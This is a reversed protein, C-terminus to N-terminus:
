TQDPWHEPVKNLSHYKFAGRAGNALGLLIFITLFNGAEGTQDFMLWLGYAFYTLGVVAATRSMQTLGYAVVFFVVADILNGTGWLVGPAFQLGMLGTILSMTALFFAVWMGQKAAAEAGDIHDTDPWIHSPSHRDPIGIRAM